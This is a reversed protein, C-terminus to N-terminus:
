VSAPVGSQVGLQKELERVRANAYLLSVELQAKALALENIVIQDATPEQTPQEGM